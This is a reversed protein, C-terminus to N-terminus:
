VSMEGNLDPLNFDLAMAGLGFQKEEDTSTAVMEAKETSIQETEGNQQCSFTLSIITVMVM